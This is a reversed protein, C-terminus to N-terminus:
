KQRVQYAYAAWETTVPTVASIVLVAHDLRAGLGTFTITGQNREDLPVRMVQTEAGTTVLQVVFEQPVQATIRVWGEAQWGGDGQEADDAYGLKPISIGDLCFGPHNVSDDTVVEFRLLIPGGAYPSLDFTQKVWAPEDGDGSLGTFAPGYSNDSPNATTTHENALIHWTQGGDASVEVYAYDYDAELDYWTWAQLTAQALGTLDFGRTLTVDAEDGRNSWWQYEGSRIENGVLSVLLSGTFEVTVDGEGWLQVYDTAYQHVTAQQSVPYASHSAALDPPSIALDTYGYRGDSLEPDDLYNAIVWDAFLDNFQYDGNGVTALVDDFGAIGNDQESVLQRVASVDYRDLFYSSFLYSAGYHPASDELDSWANLQTDPASSFAVDSGGVDYGNIQGALESLGENVWTDENRDMAWHIMHQFEHALIGDFYDNGPMANHLNIYFMEHQNSHPRIVRPYEDPGSFYGGVGPVDGAFIYVHPDGDVGPNWESGFYRHNTAYTQNEFTLASAALDAEDVAFGEEIWWYAHETEYRLTATATFYSNTSVNHVWFVESAGLDYRPPSAPPTPELARPLGELRQALDFLDRQPLNSQVLARATQRELPEPTNQVVVPTPAPDQTVPSPVPETPVAANLGWSLGVLGSLVLCSCIVFSLGVAGLIMWQNRTV